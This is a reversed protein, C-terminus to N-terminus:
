GIEEIDDDDDLEIQDAFSTPTAPADNPEASAADVVTEVDVAVAKAVVTDATVVAAAAEVTVVEHPHTNVSPTASVDSLDVDMPLERISTLANELLARYKDRYSTEEDKLRKLSDLLERKKGQAEEVIEAARDEATVILDKAQGRAKGVLEEATKQAVVLVNGIEASDIEPVESAPTAPRGSSTSLQARLSEVERNLRDVEAACLDLFDDVENEKYGRVGHGFEKEHIDMASLAM